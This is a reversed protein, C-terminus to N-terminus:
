RNNNMQQNFNDFSSQMSEMRSFASEMRSFQMKLDAEKSALQREMTEIRRRDQAISTNITNTKLTIIGGTEVYPRALADLNYAVGSDILM